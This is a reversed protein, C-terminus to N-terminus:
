KKQRYFRLLDREQQQIQAVYDLFLKSLGSACLVLMLYCLVLFDRQFLSLSASIFVRDSDVATFTYM